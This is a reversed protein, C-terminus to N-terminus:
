SKKAFKSLEAKLEDTADRETEDHYLMFDSMKLRKGKKGRKSDYYFQQWNAARMDARYEGFPEMGYYCLLEFRQEPTLGDLM